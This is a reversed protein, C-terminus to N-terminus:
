AAPSTGTSDTQPQAQGSSTQAQLHKTLKDSLERLKDLGLNKAYAVKHEELFEKIKAREDAEAAKQAKAAEAAAKEAETPEAQYGGPENSWGDPREDESSITKTEDNPGYIVRPFEQFRYPKNEDSM